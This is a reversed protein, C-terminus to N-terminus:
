GTIKKVSIQEWICGVLCSAVAALSDWMPDSEWEVDSSGGAWPICDVTELMGLKKALEAAKWFGRSILVGERINPAWPLM